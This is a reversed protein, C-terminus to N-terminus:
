IHHSSDKSNWGYNSHLIIRSNQFDFWVWLKFFYTFSLLLCLLHPSTPILQPLSLSTLFPPSLIHPPHPSTLLLYSSPLSVSSCFPFFSILSLLLVFFSSLFPYSTLHAHLWGTLKKLSGVIYQRERLRGNGELRTLGHLNGTWGQRLWALSPLFPGKDDHWRWPERVGRAPGSRETAEAEVEGSGLRENKWEETPGGQRKRGEQM